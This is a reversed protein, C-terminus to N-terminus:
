FSYSVTGNIHYLIMGEVLYAILFCGGGLLLGKVIDSAVGSKGFGIDRWSSHLLCLVVALVAIGFVKHLVNESLVTEDTRIVFYEILRATGCICFLIICSLIPCEKIRKEVGDFRGQPNINIMGGSALFPIPCAIGDRGM